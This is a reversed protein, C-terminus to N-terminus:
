LTIFGLDIDKRYEKANSAFSSIIRNDVVKCETFPHGADQTYDWFKEEAQSESEATVAYTVREVREEIIYYVKEKPQYHDIHKLSRATTTTTM